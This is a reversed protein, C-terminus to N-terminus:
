SVVIRLVKSFGSSTMRVIYVGPELDLDMEGEAHSYARRICEVGTVNTITIQIETEPLFNLKFSLKSENVVPMPYLSIDKGTEIKVSVTKFTETYGDFDNAQLRYYSVGAFPFGDTFSYDHPQKTTGHGPVSAIVDFKRGDTSRLIDFHDFNIESATAWRLDVVEGLQSAKFDILEIPLATGGNNQIFDYVGPLNTSLDTGTNLSADPPGNGISSQAGQAGNNYSGAYFSGGTVDISSQSGSKSVSGTVVINGANSLDVKNNIDLNGFVILLGGAPVSLTMADTAFSMNGFVILTDAVTFTLTPNNGAFTMNRTISSSGLSVYGFINFAVGSSGVNTFAPASGDVWTSNVEWSKNSQNNKSNEQATAILPFIMLLAAIFNKM